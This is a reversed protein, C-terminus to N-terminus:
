TSNSSVRSCRDGNNFGMKRERKREPSNEHLEIAVGSFEAWGLSHVHRVLDDVMVSVFNDSMWGDAIM